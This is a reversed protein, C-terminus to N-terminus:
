DARFLKEPVRFFKSLHHAQTRSIPRKGDLVERAIHPNGFIDAIDQLELGKSSMLRQLTNHPLPETGPAEDEEADDEDAAHTEYAEVLLVILALLHEEEDSLEDGKEMLSEALTLLREHEEPTEILRPRYEALLEGYRKEDMSKSELRYWRARLEPANCVM